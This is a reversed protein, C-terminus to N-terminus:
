RRTPIWHDRLRSPGLGDWVGPGIGWDRLRTEAERREEQFWRDGTLTHEELWDLGERREPNPARGATDSTERQRTM